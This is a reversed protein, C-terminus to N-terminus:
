EVNFSIPVQVVGGDAPVGDVTLPSLRFQRCIALGAQGFGADAPEESVVRCHLEGSATIDGAVVVKGPIRAKFAKPPYYQQVNIQPAELWQPPAVVPERPASVQAASLTMLLALGALM